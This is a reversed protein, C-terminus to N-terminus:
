DEQIAALAADIEAATVDRVQVVRGVAAPLIWTLTGATMKKDRTLAERVRAADFRRRMAYGLGALLDDLQAAFAPTALGRAM